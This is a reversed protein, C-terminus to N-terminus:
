SWNIQGLRLDEQPDSCWAAFFCLSAYVFSTKPPSYCSLVIKTSFSAKCCRNCAVFFHEPLFSKIPKIIVRVIIIFLLVIRPMKNKIRWGPRHWTHLQKHCERDCIIFVIQSPLKRSCTVSNETQWNILISTFIYTQIGLYSLVLVVVKEM